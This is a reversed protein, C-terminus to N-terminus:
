GFFTSDIHTVGKLLLTSGDSLTILTDAGGNVATSHAVANAVTDTTLHIRDGSGQDFGIVTDAYQNPGDVLMMNTGSMNIQAQNAGTNSGSQVTDSNGSIFVTDNGSGLAVMDDFGSVAITDNGSGAAIIDGNGSANILSNGSGGALIFGNGSLNITDNGTGATITDASGLVNILDNGSGAAVFNGTGSVNITDNGSGGNVWDGTGFVNILDVGNGNVTDANGFVNITDQGGGGNAVENNGFLNLAVNAAGGSITENAGYASLTDNGSGNDTIAFAGSILDLELGSPSLVALGQYGAAPTTPAGGSGSIFIELNFDGAIPAPLTGDTTQVVNVTLGSASAQWQSGPITAM